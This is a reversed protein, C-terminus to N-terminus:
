GREKVVVTGAVQDHWPRGQPDQTARYVDFGILLLGFLEGGPFMTFVVGGGGVVSRRVVQASTLETGREVPQVRLHLLRKGVTRGGSGRFALQYGLWLTVGVLAGIGESLALAGLGGPGLLDGTLGLALDFVSSVATAAVFVLVIDVAYAGLRESLQGLPTGDPLAKPLARYRAVLDQSGGPAVTPAATPQAAPAPPPPPPGAPPEVTRTHATWQYGNWWREEGPAKARPDPYWGEPVLQAM